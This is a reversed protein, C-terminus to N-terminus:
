TGNVDPLLVAAAIIGLLVVGVSAWMAWLGLRDDKRYGVYGAIAGTLGGLLPSLLLGFAALVFGAITWPRGEPRASQEPRAEM